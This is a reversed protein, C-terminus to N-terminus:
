ALIYTSQVTFNTNAALAGNVQVVGGSTITAKINHHTYTTTATANIAPKLADVLTVPSVSGSIASSMKLNLRVMVTRGQQVYQAESVTVGSATSKVVASVTSSSARVVSSRIDIVEAIAQSTFRVMYFGSGTMGTLYLTGYNCNDGSAAGNVGGSRHPVWIYNYWGSPITVGSLTYAATVSVSGMAGSSYRLEAVINPITGSTAGYCGPAVSSRFSTKLQGTMTDGSIAVADLASRWASPDSVVIIKTGDAAVYMELTNWVNSGNVPRVTGLRTSIRGNTEQRAYLVSTMNSNKDQLMAYIQDAQSPLSSSTNDITPNRTIVRSGGTMFLDGTMTDGSKSVKRELASADVDNLRSEISVIRQNNNEYNKKLSDYVRTGSGSIIAAEDTIELTTVVGRFLFNHNVSLDDPKDTIWYVDGVRFPNNFPFLRITNPHYTRYVTYIREEITEGDDIYETFDDTYKFKELKTMIARAYSDFAIISNDVFINSSIIYNKGDPWLRTSSDAWGAVTGDPRIISIESPMDAQYGASNNGDEKYYIPTYEIAVSPTLQDTPNVLYKTGTGDVYSFNYTALIINNTTDCKIFCGAIEAAQSFVDRVTITDAYFANVSIQLFSSSTDSPLYSTNTIKESVGAYTAADQVMASLTMPFRNLNNLERLRASYDIDLKYIDDYAVFSIMNRTPADVFATYKGFNHEVNNNDVQLYQIVDGTVVLNSSYEPFTNDPKYLSVEIMSAVASGFRINESSNSQEVYRFSAIQTLEVNSRTNVLKHRM